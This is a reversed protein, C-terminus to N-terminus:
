RKREQVMGNQLLKPLLLQSLGQPRSQRGKHWSGPNQIRLRSWWGGHYGVEGDCPLGDGIIPYESDHRLFFPLHHDLRGTKRFERPPTTPDDNTM